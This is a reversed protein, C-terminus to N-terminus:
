ITTVTDDIDTLDLTSHTVDYGTQSEQFAIASNNSTISMINFFANYIYVRPYIVSLSNSVVTNTLLTIKDPSKNYLIIIGDGTKGSVGCKVSVSHKYLKSGGGGGSEKVAAILEDMQEIAVENLVKNQM